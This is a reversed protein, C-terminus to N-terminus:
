SQDEGRQVSTVTANARGSGFCVAIADNPELSDADRLITGAANTVISYGRELVANPNLHALSAALRAIDVVDIGVGVIM